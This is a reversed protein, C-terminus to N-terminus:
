AGGERIENMRRRVADSFGSAEQYLDYHQNIARKIMHSRNTMETKIETLQEILDDVENIHFILTEDIKDMIAQKLTHAPHAPDPPALRESEGEVPPLLPLSCGLTMISERQNEVVFEVM